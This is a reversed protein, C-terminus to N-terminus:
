ARPHFHSEIGDQFLVWIAYAGLTTGLPVVLLLFFAASLATIRARPIRQRLWVGALISAAGTVLLLLSLLSAMATLFTLEEASGFRFPSGGLLYVMLTGAALHLIGLALSANALRTIHTEM